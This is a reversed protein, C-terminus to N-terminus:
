DKRENPVILPRAEVWARSVAHRPEPESAGNGTQNVLKQNKTFDVSGDKLIYDSGGSTIMNKIQKKTLLADDFRSQTTTAVFDNTHLTVYDTTGSDGTRFTFLTGINGSTTIKGQVTFTRESYATGAGERKFTIRGAGTTTGGALPLYPGKGASPDDNGLRRNLHGYTVLGYDPVTGQYDLLQDYETNSLLMNGDTDALILPESNAIDSKVLFADDSTHVVHLPGNIEGGDATFAKKFVKVNYFTNTSTRQFGKEPNSSAQYEVRLAWVNSPTYTIDDAMGGDGDTQGDVYPVNRKSTVNYIAYELNGDSGIFNIELTDGVGSNSLWDQKEAGIYDNFMIDVIHQYQVSFAYTNNLAEISARNLGAVALSGGGPVSDLRLTDEEFEELYDILVDDFNNGDDIVEGRIGSELRTNRDPHTEAFKYNADLTIDNTAAILDYGKDLATQDDKFQANVWDTTAVNDPGVVNWSNTITDYQYIIGGTAKLGASDGAQPYQVGHTPNTPFNLQTM